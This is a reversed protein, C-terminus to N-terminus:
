SRRSNEEGRQHKQRGEREDINSAASQKQEQECNQKGVQDVRRDHADLFQHPSPGARNGHDIQEQDGAQRQDTEKYSRANGALGSAQAGGQGTENVFGTLVLNGALDILDRDLQSALM